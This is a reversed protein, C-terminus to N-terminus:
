LHASPYAARQAYALSRVIVEAIQRAADPHHLSRLANGMVRRSEPAEILRRVSPVLSADVHRQELLICGGSRVALEANRRQHDHAVGQLPVLLAPLGVAALEAITTAGARSLALDAAALLHPYEEAAFDTQWYGAPNGIVVNKGKGTLHIIDCFELLETLRAAIARNHALAGQSGGLVLLIPRMRALRTLAFGRQRSGSFIAERVPTGTVVAKANRISGAFGVCLTEAFRGILRNAWGSVVDSEHLIIPIDRRRAQLCLPVSVYGGKSFIVDPNETELLRHAAKLARWFKWPFKWSLRPADFAIARYGAREVFARDDPRMSVVFSMRMDPLREHLVRAVEISPAIHGISGGGVFLLSSPM